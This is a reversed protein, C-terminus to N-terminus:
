NPHKRQFLFVLCVATLFVGINAKASPRTWLYMTAFVTIVVLAFGPTSVVHQLINAIGVVRNSIIFLLHFLISVTMDM